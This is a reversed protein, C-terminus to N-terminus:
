LIFILLNHRAVSVPLIGTQVHTNYDSVDIDRQENMEERPRGGIMMETLARGDVWNLLLDTVEGVSM